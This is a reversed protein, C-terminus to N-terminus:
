GQCLSIWSNETFCCLEEQSRAEPNPLSINQFVQGEPVTVLLSTWKSRLPDWSRIGMRPFSLELEDRPVEWGEGPGNIERQNQLGVDKWEERTKGHEGNGRGCLKHLRALM